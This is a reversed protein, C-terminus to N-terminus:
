NQRLRTAATTLAELSPRLKSDDLRGAVTHQHLKHANHIRHAASNFYLLGHAVTVDAYRGVSSDLKPDANIDAVSRADCAARAPLRM